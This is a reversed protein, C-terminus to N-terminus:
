LKSIRCLGILKSRIKGDLKVERVVHHSLQFKGLLCNWDFHM